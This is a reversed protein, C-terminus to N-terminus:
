AAARKEEGIMRVAQKAAEVCTGLKGSFIRIVQENLRQVLTPREDTADRGPLVARVTFMSGAYEADKLAPVFRAAERCFLGARSRKPKAVIGRNLYGKIADPVIPDFGTNTAHIAHEVNGMLHLDTAGFPDLSFFPGDMVVISTDRFSAHLKFVPKEVVEFQFQQTPAGLQFSVENSGAYAAVVIRDFDDRMRRYAQVGLHVLVGVAILKAVVAHRLAVPDVSSELVEILLEVNEKSVFPAESKRYPLSERELFSIYDWASTRSGEKAIAYYQGGHKRREPTIVADRYEAFFSANGARCERGTEPSRPYHYGRHLRLQNVSSAAQMLNPMREFLHVEHGARALHVAATCGFLGGGCVAVRM